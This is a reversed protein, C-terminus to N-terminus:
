ARRDCNFIRRVKIEDDDDFHFKHHRMFAGSAGEIHAVVNFFLQVCFSAFRRTWHERFADRATCNSYFTFHIDERERENARAVISSVVVLAPKIIIIFDPSIVASWDDKKEIGSDDHAFSTENCESFVLLPIHSAYSVITTSATMASAAAFQADHLILFQM